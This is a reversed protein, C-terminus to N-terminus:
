TFFLHSVEGLSQSMTHVLDVTINNEPQIVRNVRIKIQLKIKYTNIMKTERKQDM